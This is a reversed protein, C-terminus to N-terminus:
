RAATEADFERESGRARAVPGNHSSRQALRDCASAARFNWMRSVALAALLCLVPEIPYRYRGYALFTAYYPLPYLLGVWIYVGVPLGRQLSKAIGAGALLTTAILGAAFVRPYNAWKTWWQGFWFGSARMFCGKAFRLPERRVEAVFRTKNEADFGREGQAVFRKAAEANHWPNEHLGLYNEKAAGPHNGMWLATGLMGRLPSWSGLVLGNRVSWPSLVLLVAFLCVLSDRIRMPSFGWAPMGQAKILTTDNSFRRSSQRYLFYLTVPLIMVAAGDALMALGLTAGSWAAHATASRWEGGLVFLHLLILMALLHTCWAWHLFQWGSPLFLFLLVALAGTRDFLSQRSPPDSPRVPWAATFLANSPGACAGDGAAGIRAGLLYLLAAIVGHFLSNLWIVAIQSEFSFAGWVRFIGALLLPYLPSAWATPLPPSDGFRVSYGLGRALNGAIHGQEFGFDFESKLHMTAPDMGRTGVVARLAVTGLGIAIAVLVTQRM